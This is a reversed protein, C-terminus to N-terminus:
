KLNLKLFVEAKHLLIAAKESNSNPNNLAETFHFYADM